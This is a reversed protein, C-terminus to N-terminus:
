YINLVWLVSSKKTLHTFDPVCSSRLYCSDCSDNASSPYFLRGDGVKFKSVQGGENTAYLSANRIVLIENIIITLLLM